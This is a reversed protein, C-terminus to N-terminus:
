RRRNSGLTPARSGRRGFGGVAPRDLDEGDGVLVCAFRERGFSRPSDAGVTGGNRELLDDFSAAGGWRHDATFVAGLEDGVCESLSTCKVLM